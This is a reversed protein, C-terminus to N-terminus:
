RTGSGDRVADSHGLIVEGGEQHVVPSGASLARTYVCVCNGVVSSATACENHKLYLV